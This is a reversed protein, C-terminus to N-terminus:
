NREDQSLLKFEITNCDTLKAWFRQAKVKKAKPNGWSWRSGPITVEGLQKAYFTISSYDSAGKRIYIRDVALTTGAPITVTLKEKMIENARDNWEKHDAWYKAFEPCSDEAEKKARDYAEKDFGGFRKRFKPDDYSPYNISYDIQRLRPLVEEEIWGGRYASSLYHGFLAGLQDNRTEAHLDFTWDKTLIIHDGIEPVYLKM